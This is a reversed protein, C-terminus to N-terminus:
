RRVWNGEDDFNLSRRHGCANWVLDFMPKLIKGPQMSFDEVVAEPLILTDVDIPYGRESAYTGVGMVTGRVGVLTLAVMAPPNCGINKLVRFCVPLYKLVADECFFSPIAKRAGGLVTGEVAEITGNRYLQTYSHAPDEGFYTIVGDLNIRHSWGSAGMPPLGQRGEYFQAIDYYQQSAFSEVPLCHLVLKADPTFPIPTQNGAIAIIRDTRFARIRETITQSLTFATRLESVDLPYKGASNRGYFKDHGKFVVRHPGLWSREVRLVVVKAGDKCNVTRMGYRIRPELGSALIGDLRRLELDLDASGTGVIRTPVGQSEVVGFVLHGGSTNAFSSADALFEKKDADSSGPLMEKYDLTKGEPVADAILSILDGETIDAPSNPFV